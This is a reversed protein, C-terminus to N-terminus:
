DELNREIKIEETTDPFSRRWFPRVIVEAREISPYGSLITHIAEKDRGVLDNKLKEEDFLWILTANGVLSFTFTNSEWPRMDSKDLATLSLTESSLLAVPNDDFGALTNQAIHKAFAEGEFLVGYLTAKETLVASGDQEVVPESEFEVFVADEFLLFGEPVQSFTESLLKENLEARLESRAREEESEEVVLKEGVFGGTLPSKSRAYFHEFQPAGKFGPITFDTLGINYNEGPEDAYVTVEISGPTTKGGLVTQGPIVISENIRYILGLPTEFRTNRILRQKATNYDNYIVIKGSAKLTVEERGTAAITRSQSLERTMIGYPLNSLAKDTSAIFDGNVVVKEHKPFAVIQAGTFLFSFLFFLIIILASALMLGYLWPM